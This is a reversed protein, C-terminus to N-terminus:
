RYATRDRDGHSQRRRRDALERASRRLVEVACHAPSARVSYGLSRAARRRDGNRWNDQAYTLFLSAGWGRHQWLLPRLRLRSLLPLQATHRHFITAVAPFRRWALEENPEFRQRFLVVPVAITGIPHRAAIRLLWDWDNDGPLDPDFDGAERAADRRTLVTAVQPFYGLLENLIHGSRLPGEPFPAGFPTLDPGTRQAQAHVSAYEPHRDFVDLQVIIATPLFVDDDDLLSVFDGSAHRLGLSRAPGMGIGETTIRRVPLTSLVAPTDDTSGDDVVIIELDFREQDLALASEVAQRVLASRNKTTIVVSM